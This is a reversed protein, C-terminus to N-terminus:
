VMREPDNRHRWADFWIAAVLVVGLVVPQWFPPVFIQVFGSRLISPFFAGLVTGIMGGVGGWLSTGGLVAATIAQLNDLTHAEISTSRYTAIDIFGALGACLGAFLYLFFLHRRVNVGARRAGESNSGVAYTRLGGRTRRLWVGTALALALAVIIPLPVVGWLRNQGFGSQMVAPINVLNQGNTVVFALGFFTGMTALTAVFSPLRAYAILFGNIAGCLAGTVLATVVGAAIAVGTVPGSPANGLIAGIVLASIVSSFVLIGGVSIDIGGVILLLTMPVSLILTTTAADAIGAFNSPSLFRLGPTAITFIALSVVLIVTVWVGRFRDDIPRRDRTEHAIGQETSALSL